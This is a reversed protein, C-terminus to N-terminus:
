IAIIQQLAASVEEESRNGDVKLLKQRDSYYNILPATDARYVDL